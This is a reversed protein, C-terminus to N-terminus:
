ILGIPVLVYIKHVPDYFLVTAGLIEKAKSDWIDHGFNVFPVDKKLLVRYDKRTQAAYWAVCALFLEYEYRRTSTYKQVGMYLQKKPIHKLTKAHKIVFETYARFELCKPDTVSRVALNTNNTLEFTVRHYEKLVIDRGM